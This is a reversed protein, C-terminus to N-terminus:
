NNNRKVIIVTKYPDVLPQYYQYPQITQTQNNMTRVINHNDSFISDMHKFNCSYTNIIQNNYNDWEQKSISYKRINKGIEKDNKIVRNMLQRNM